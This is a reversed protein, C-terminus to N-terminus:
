TLGDIEADSLDGPVITVPVRLKGAHKGTLAEVLPGPGDKGTGAALVVVSIGEDEAVLRFLEERADGERLYLEPMDGSYANVAAATIQLRQEGGLRAEEQMLNGIFMWHQFEPPQVVSLLAVRGGTNRARKSAFRLAARMEESEDVVVLFIRRHASPVSEEESLPQAPPHRSDYM